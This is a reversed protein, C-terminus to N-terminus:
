SRGPKFGRDTRADAPVEFRVPKSRGQKDVRIGGLATTFAHRLGAFDAAKMRRRALVVDTNPVHEWGGYQKRFYWLKVCWTVERGKMNHFERRRLLEVLLTARKDTGEIADIKRYDEFRKVAFVHDTLWKRDAETMPGPKERAIGQKEEEQRALEELESERYTMDAGEFRGRTTELVLDYRGPLLNGIKFAGTRRDFEAHYVLDLNRDVAWLRQVVAAPTISGSISGLKAVPDKEPVPGAPRSQTPEAGLALLPLLLLIRYM